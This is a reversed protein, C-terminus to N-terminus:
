GHVKKVPEGDIEMDCKAVFSEVVEVGDAKQFCHQIDVSGQNKMFWHAAKAIEDATMYNGQTDEVM